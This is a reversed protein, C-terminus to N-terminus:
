IWSSHSIDRYPEAHGYSLNNPRLTSGAKLAPHPCIQAGKQPEASGHAPAPGGTGAQGASSGKLALSASPEQRVWGWKKQEESSCFPLFAALLERQVAACLHGHSSTSCFKNCNSGPKSCQTSFAQECTTHLTCLGTSYASCLVMVHCAM